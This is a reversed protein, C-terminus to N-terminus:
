GSKEVAGRDLRSSTADEEGLNGEEEVRALLERGFLGRREEKTDRLEELVLIGAQALHDVEDNLLKGVRGLVDDHDCAGNHLIRAAAGIGDVPGIGDPRQTANDIDTSGWYRGVSILTSLM